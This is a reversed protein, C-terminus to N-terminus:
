KNLLFYFQNAEIEENEWKKNLNANTNIVKAMGHKKKPHKILIIGMFEM